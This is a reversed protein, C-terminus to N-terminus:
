RTEMSVIKIKQVQDDYTAIVGLVVSGHEFVNDEIIIKSKGQAAVRDHIESEHKELLNVLFRTGVRLNKQIKDSIEIRVKSAKM